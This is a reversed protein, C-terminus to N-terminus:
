CQWGEHKRSCGVGVVVPMVIVMVAVISVISITPRIIASAGVAVGITTSAAPCSTQDDAPYPSAEEPMRDSAASCARQDTSASACQEAAVNLAV